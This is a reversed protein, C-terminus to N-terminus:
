PGGHKSDATGTASALSFTPAAKSVASYQPALRGPYTLAPHEVNRYSHGASEECPVDLSPLPRATTTNTNTTPASAPPARRMQIKTPSGRRVPKAIRIEVGSRSKQPRSQIVSELLTMCWWQGRGERNRRREPNLGRRIMADRWVTRRQIMVPATAAIVIVPDM